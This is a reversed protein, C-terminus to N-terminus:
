EANGFLPHVVRDGIRISLRRATGANVELVARVPRGASITTLSRPVTREAIHVIKGGADIFLMDLPVFTNRMWMTAVTDRQHYFLMGADPALQQRFMLGQAQQPPTLALEVDFTHSEGLTEIKLTSREFAAQAPADAVRWAFVVLLALVFAAAFRVRRQTGVM